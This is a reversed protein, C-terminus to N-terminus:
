RPLTLVTEALLCGASEGSTVTPGRTEDPPGTAQCSDESALPAYIAFANGPLGSANGYAGTMM